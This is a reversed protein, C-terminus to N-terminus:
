NIVALSILLLLLKYNVQTTQSISKYKPTQFDVPYEMLGEAQEWRVEWKRIKKKTQIQEVNGWEDKM